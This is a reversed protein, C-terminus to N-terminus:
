YSNKALFISPCICLFNFVKLGFQSATFCPKGQMDLDIKQGGLGFKDM